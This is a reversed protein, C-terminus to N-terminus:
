IQGRQVLSSPTGPHFVLTRRFDMRRAVTLMDLTGKSTLIDDHWGVVRVECGMLKRGRLAKAMERNRIPGAGRHHTDWDADYIHLRQGLQRFRAWTRVFHDVGDADGVIVEDPGIRDLTAWVATRDTWGADDHFECFPRKQCRNCFAKKRRRPGRAGTCLVVLTM